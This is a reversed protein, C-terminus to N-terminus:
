RRRRTAAIAGFGVLAVSAPAPVAYSVDDASWLEQFTDMAPNGLIAVSAVPTTSVFGVFGQNFDTISDLLFFEGAIEVGIGDGSFPSFWDAGFGIVSNGNFSIDVREHPEAGTEGDLFNTGNLNGFASGPEIALFGDGANASGDRKIQILGTDLTAGDNILQPTTADFTETVVPAGMLATEWSTRDFFVSVQASAHMAPLAIACAIAFKNMTGGMARASAREHKRAGDGVGGLTM